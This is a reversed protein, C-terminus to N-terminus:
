ITTKAWSALLHLLGSYTSVSSWCFKRLSQNVLSLFPSYILQLSSNGTSWACASSKTLKSSLSRFGVYAMCTLELSNNGCNCDITLPSYLILFADPLSYILSIGIQHFINQAKAWFLSMLPM